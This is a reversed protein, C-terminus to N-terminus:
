RHSPRDVDEWGPRHIARASRRCWSAPACSRQSLRNCANHHEWQFRQTPAGAKSTIVRHGRLARVDPRTHMNGGVSRLRRCRPHWTSTWAAPAWNRRQILQKIGCVCLARCRPARLGREPHHMFAEQPMNVCGFPNMKKKGEKQKDLLKRKRSIDGGYCKATVDKRMERVNDRAIVKGGIAAQIAVKFIQSSHEQLRECLERGSGRSQRPARHMALADVPDGNILIDM